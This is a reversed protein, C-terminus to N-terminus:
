PNVIIPNKPATYRKGTLQQYKTQAAEVVGALGALESQRLIEKPVDSQIGQANLSAIQATAKTIIAVLVQAEATAAIQKGMAVATATAVQGFPSALFATTAACSSLSLCVVLVPAAKKAAEIAANVADLGTVSYKRSVWSLSLEVCGLVASSAGAAIVAASSESFGHGILWAAIVAAAVASYKVAQRALWGANTSVLNILMSNM